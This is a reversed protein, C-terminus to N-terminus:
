LRRRWWAQWGRSWAAVYCPGGSSVPIEFYGSGDTTFYGNPSDPLPRISTSYAVTAGPILVGSLSKVYGSIKASAALGTLLVLLVGILIIYGSRKM